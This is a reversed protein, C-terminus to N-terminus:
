SIKNRQRGAQRGEDTTGICENLREDFPERWERFFLCFNPQNEFRIAYIYLYADFAVQIELMLSLLNKEFSSFFLIEILIVGERRRGNSRITIKLTLKHKRKLRINSHMKILAEEINQRWSDIVSFCIVYGNTAACIFSVTNTSLVGDINWREQIVFRCREIQAVSLELSANM